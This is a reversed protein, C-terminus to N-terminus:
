SIKVNIHAGKLVDELVLLKVINKWDAIKGQLLIIKDKNVLLAITFNFLKYL